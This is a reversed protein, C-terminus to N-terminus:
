EEFDEPYVIKHIEQVIEEYQKTTLGFSIKLTDMLERNRDALKKIDKNNRILEAQIEMQSKESQKDAAQVLISVIKEQCGGPGLSDLYERAKEPLRLHLDAPCTGKSKPGPKLLLIV